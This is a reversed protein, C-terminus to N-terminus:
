RLELDKLSKRELAVRMDGRIPDMKSWFDEIRKEKVQKTLGVLEALSVIAQLKGNREPIDDFIPLHHIDLIALIQLSSEVTNDPFVYALKGLPVVIDSVDVDSLRENKAATKLVDSITIMGIVKEDEIVALASIREEMMYHLSFLVTDSPKVAYPPGSRHPPRLRLIDSIKLEPKKPFYPLHKQLWTYVKAIRLYNGANIRM